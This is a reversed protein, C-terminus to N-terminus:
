KTVPLATVASLPHIYFRFLVENKIINGVGSFINQNRLAGCALKDPVTCM